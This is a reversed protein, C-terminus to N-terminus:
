TDTPASVCEAAATSRLKSISGSTQAAARLLERMAGPPSRRGARRRRISPRTVEGLGARGVVDRSVSASRPAGSPASADDRERLGGPRPRRPRSHNEGGPAPRYTDITQRSARPQQRSQRQRAAHRDRLCGRARGAQRDLDLPRVVDDDGIPVRGRAGCAPRCGPPLRRGSRGAHLMDDQPEADVDPVASTDAAVRPARSTSRSSSPRGTSAPAPARPFAPRAQVLLHIREAAASLGCTRSRQRASDGDATRRGRRIARRRCADM